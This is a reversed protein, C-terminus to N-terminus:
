DERQERGTAWRGVAIGLEWLFGVVRGIPGTVLWARARDAPKVDAVTSSANPL